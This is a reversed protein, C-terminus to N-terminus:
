DLTLKLMIRGDVGLDGPERDRVEQQGISLKRNKEGTNIVIWRIPNDEHRSVSLCVFRKYYVSQLSLCVGSCQPLTGNVSSETRGGCISPRITLVDWPPISYQPEGESIQSYRARVNLWTGPLQRTESVTEAIQVQWRWAFISKM